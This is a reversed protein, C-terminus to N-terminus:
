GKKYYCGLNNYTLAMLRKKDDENLFEPNDMATLLREAANM